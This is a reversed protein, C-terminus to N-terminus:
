LDGKPNPAHVLLYPIAQVPSIAQLSDDLFAEQLVRHSGALNLCDVKTLEIAQIGAGDM